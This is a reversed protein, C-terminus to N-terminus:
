KEAYFEIYGCNKCKYAFVRAGAGSVFVRWRSRGSTWYPANQLFGVEMMGSCKPCKKVESENM